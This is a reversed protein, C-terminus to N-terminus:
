QDTPLAVLRTTAGSWLIMPGPGHEGNGVVVDRGVITCPVGAEAARTMVLEVGHVGSSDMFTVQSLDVRLHEPREDVALEGAVAFTGASHVDIEGIPVLRVERRDHIIQISLSVGAVIGLADVDDSM